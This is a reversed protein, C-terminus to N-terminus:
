LDCVRRPLPGPPDCPSPPTIEGWKPLSLRTHTLRPPEGWHKLLCLGQLQPLTRDERSRPGPVSCFYPHGQSYPEKPGQLQMWFSLTRGKHWAGLGVGLLGTQTVKCSSRTLCRYWRPAPEAGLATRASLRCRTHAAPAGPAWPGPPTPARPPSPHSFLFSIPLRLPFYGRLLALSLYFSFRLPLLMLIHLLTKACVIPWPFKSDRSM